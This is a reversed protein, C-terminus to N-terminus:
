SLRSTGSGHSREGPGPRGLSDQADDFPKGLPARTRPSDGPGIM